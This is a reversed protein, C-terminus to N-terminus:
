TGRSSDNLVALVSSALPTAPPACDLMSQRRMSSLDNNVVKRPSVSGLTRKPPSCPSSCDVPLRHSFFFLTERRSHKSLSLYNLRVVMNWSYASKM